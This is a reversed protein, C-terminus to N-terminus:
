LMLCILVIITCKYNYDNNYLYLIKSFTTKTTTLVWNRGPLHIQKTLIIIIIFIIYFIIIIIIIIIFLLIFYLFYTKILSLNKFKLEVMPFFFFGLSPSDLKNKIIV